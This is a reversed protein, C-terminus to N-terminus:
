HQSVAFKGPPIISVAEPSIGRIQGEVLASMAMDSLGAASCLYSKLFVFGVTSLLLTRSEVVFTVTFLSKSLLKYHIMDSLCLM